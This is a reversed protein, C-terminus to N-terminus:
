KKCELQSIINKFCVDGAAGIGTIPTKYTGTIPVARVFLNKEKDSDKALWIYGYNALSQSYAALVKEFDMTLPTQCEFQAAQWAERCGEYIGVNNVIRTYNEQWWSEFQKNIAM